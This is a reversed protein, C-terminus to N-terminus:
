NPKQLHSHRWDESHPDAEHDRAKKRLADWDKGPPLCNAKATDIEGLRRNESADPM